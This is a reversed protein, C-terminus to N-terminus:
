GNMSRCCIFCYYQFSHASFMKKYIFLHPSQQHSQLTVQNLIIVEARIAILFLIWGNRNDYTFAQHVICQRHFLRRKDNTFQFSLVITRHFAHRPQSTDSYLGCKWIRSIVTHCQYFLVFCFRIASFHLLCLFLFFVCCLLLTTELGDSLSTIHIGNPRNFLLYYANM